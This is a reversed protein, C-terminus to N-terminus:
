IHILSLRRPPRKLQRVYIHKTKMMADSWDIKRRWAIVAAALWGGVEGVEYQCFSSMVNSFSAYCFEYVPAIFPPQKFFKVIIIAVLMAVMRNSFVLFQSSTFKEGDYEKTMLSEQLVGWTLYAVQLGLACAALLLGRKLRSEEEPPGSRGDDKSASAEDDTSVVERKNVCMNILRHFVSSPRLSSQPFVRQLIRVISLLVGMFVVYLGVKSGFAILDDVFSGM